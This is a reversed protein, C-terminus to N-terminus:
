DIDTFYNFKKFVEIAEYEAMGLKDYLVANSKNRDEVRQWFERQDNGLFMPSDKQSQHRFIANRKFLVQAPSMPVAMDVDAIDWEQWAGRYMWISVNKFWDQNKLKNFALLLANWCIRHTGHPDSMDGAAYIQDPKIKLLMEELIDVDKTSLPNKAITGTKYFPMDLFFINDLSLNIFRAVARSESERICKKVYQVDEIDKDGNSKNSIFEKVRQYWVTVNSNQIATNNYNELFEIFKLAEDDNVSVNGSTQYAVYVDHGQEILRQLTGGMCIVDDDPHPSFILVKKPFPKAREPRNTDDANPKGGPWGSITHQLDNFVKINIDYEPGYLAVLDSLKNDNYDRKTLKLIPKDLKQCLWVVAQRILKDDWDCDRVLWPTKFRTLENSSAKDLIFITNDHKQLFTSPVSDIINGEVAKKVIPAKGEGWAMLIIRRATMITGVGMTIARHPVNNISGFDKAADARTVHDLSILRTPSNIGSGPENFGIHGTRGIGLLQLDIGGSKEIDEEYKNCYDFISKRPVTGDPIHINEQLIDIHDFLHMHMFAVYSQTRASEMPYYEDLNFTIVNKFSLEEERHMRVLQRYVGIPSSGTALGLVCMENRKAKEKILNAVQLAIWLSGEDSGEFIKTNLKEFKRLIKEEVGLKEM